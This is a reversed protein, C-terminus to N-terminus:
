SLDLLANLEFTVTLGTKWGNQSASGRILIKTEIVGLM